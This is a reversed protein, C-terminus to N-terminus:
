IRLCAIIFLERSELTYSGVERIQWFRLVKSSCAQVEKKWNQGKFLFIQGNKVMINKTEVLFQPLPAMARSMGLSINAKKLCRAQGNFIEVNRLDLESIMLRLFQAKRQNKEVLVFKNEPRMIGAVLGPFGNGSGFDYVPQVKQFPISNLIIWFGLCSDVFHKEVSTNKSFLNIKSNYSTVLNLFKGLLYAKNTKVNFKRKIERWTEYFNEPFDQDNFFDPSPKLSM